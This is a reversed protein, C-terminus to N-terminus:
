GNVVLKAALALMTVGILADLVRWARPNAFLLRLLRAGYGLLFFFMLSALM